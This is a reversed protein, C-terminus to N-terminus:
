RCARSCAAAECLWRNHRGYSLRRLVMSAPPDPCSCPRSLAPQAFCLLAAVLAGQKVCAGVGVKLSDIESQMEALTPKDRKRRGRHVVPTHLASAAVATAHLCLQLASRCADAGARGAAAACKLGLAEQVPPLKKLALNFLLLWGATAPLHM